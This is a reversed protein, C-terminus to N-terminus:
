RGTRSGTDRHSNTRRVTRGHKSRMSMSGDRANAALDHPATPADLRAPRSDAEVVEDGVGDAVVDDLGHMEHRGVSPLQEGVIVEVGGGSQPPVVETLGLWREPKALDGVVRSTSRAIRAMMRAGGLRHKRAVEVVGSLQEGRDFALRGPVVLRWGSHGAVELLEAPEVQRRTSASLVGVQATMPRTGHDPGIAWPGVVRRAPVAERTPM